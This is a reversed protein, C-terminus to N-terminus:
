VADTRKGGDPIRERAPPPNLRERVAHSMLRVTTRFDTTTSRLANALFSGYRRDEWAFRGLTWYSSALRSNLLRRQVTTLEPKTRLIDRFAQTKNIFRHVEMTGSTLRTSGPADATQVCGRGRVACAPRGIGVKLFFHTDHANRLVEWLGGEEQFIERNCVTTQLMMPQYERLVWESADPVLVHDTELFFGGLEWWTTDPPDPLVMDDFYFAARGKTAGIALAITELHTGTWVDDSDLFAVWGFAAEEVGRNRARAGGANEQRVYRVREGFRRVAQETDDTSGDDVVIIEAPPLSQDLVSTIARAVLHARNYSPIVASIAISQGSSM